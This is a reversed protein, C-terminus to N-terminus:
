ETKSFNTQLPLIIQSADSAMESRLTNVAHSLQLAASPHATGPLMTCEREIMTAIADLLELFGFSLAARRIRNLEKYFQQQKDPLKRAHRLVKQLDAQLGNPKIWVVCSQAYSRKDSPRIPFPTKTDDAGYPSEHFDSLPALKNLDGLWSVAHKGPEFLALLLNSKKKSDAWSFLIGYWDEGVKTVAVMSEVKLSGHLMVTFAPVKGDDIISDEEDEVKVEKNISDDKVQQKSRPIVLHRSITPPSSVDSIDLFGCIHLEHSIMREVKGEDTEVTYPIPAPYVHVANKLNGCHLMGHFPNFYKEALNSFTQQVSKLNLQGEPYFVEGGQGNIEILKEYLPLSNKLESDNNNAICVVHLKCPFKFPVPSKANNTQDDNESYTQLFHKLSGQGIGPSGDTVLVVQCPSSNGWEELIIASIGTLVTEICTKNYVEVKNLATKISDYDRTFSVLQEYLYSFVVLSIFELKCNSSIYDLLTNIGHIALNRKDFDETTSECKVLRSMSLSVDLAIITPM